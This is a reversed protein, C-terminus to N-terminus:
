GRRPGYVVALRERHAEDLPEQRRGLELGVGVVIEPLDGVVRGERHAAGLRRDLCVQEPEGVLAALPQPVEGDLRRLAVAVLLPGAREELLARGLEQPALERTTRKATRVDVGSEGVSPLPVNTAM